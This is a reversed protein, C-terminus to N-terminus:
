VEKKPMLLEGLKREMEGLVTPAPSYKSWRKVERGRASKVRREVVKLAEDLTPAELYRSTPGYNQGNRTAHTRVEFFHLPDGVKRSWFGSNEPAPTYTVEYIRYTYGVIRKKQDYVGFNCGGRRVETHERSAKLYETM